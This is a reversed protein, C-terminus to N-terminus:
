KQTIARVPAIKHPSSAASSDFDGASFEGADNTVGTTVVTGEQDKVEVVVQGVRRLDQNQVSGRITKAADEAAHAPSLGGGNGILIGVILGVCLHCWARRM